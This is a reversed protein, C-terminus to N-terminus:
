YKFSSFFHSNAFTWRISDIAYTKEGTEADTLARFCIVGIDEVEFLYEGWNKQYDGDSNSLNQLGKILRSIFLAVGSVNEDVNEQIVREVEEIFPTSYILPVSVNSSPALM